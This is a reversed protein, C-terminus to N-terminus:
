KRRSGSFVRLVVGLGRVLQLVMKELTSCLQMEAGQKGGGAGAVVDPRSIVYGVRVSGPTGYPVEVGGKYSVKRRIEPAEEPKRVRLWIPVDEERLADYEEWPIEDDMIFEELKGKKIHLHQYTLAVQYHDVDEPTAERKSGDPLRVYDKEGLEEYCMQYYAQVGIRFDIVEFYKAFCKGLSYAKLDVPLLNEEGDFCNIAPISLEKITKPELGYKLAVAKLRREFEKRSLPPTRNFIHKIRGMLGVLKMADKYTVYRKFLRDLVLSYDTDPDYKRTYEEVLEFFVVMVVQDGCHEGGGCSTIKVEM